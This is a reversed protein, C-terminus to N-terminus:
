SQQRRFLATDDRARDPDELDGLQSGAVGGQAVGGQRGGFLRGEVIVVLNIIFWALLMSILTHSFFHDGIAMKYGGTIWGALVGLLLALHRRRPTRFLFALSMLAFGGSAHGAPFCQQRHAPRADTPYAELVRVYPLTGGFQDLSKPCAVNTTHKLGSVCLPVLMLSLVVIRLGRCHNHWRRIRRCFVLSVILGLAFLVLLRKAGDYLLLRTVPENRSWIWSQLEADYLWQQIWLDSPTLEFWAICLLLAVGALVLQRRPNLPSWGSIRKMDINNNVRV